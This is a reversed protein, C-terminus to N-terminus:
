RQWRRRRYWRRCSSSRCLCRGVKARVTAAVGAAHRAVPRGGAPKEIRAGGRDVEVAEGDVISRHAAVTTLDAPLWMPPVMRDSDPVAAFRDVPFARDL